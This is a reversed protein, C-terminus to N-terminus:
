DHSHMIIKKKKVYRSNYENYFTKDIDVSMCIFAYLYHAILIEREMEYILYWDNLQKTWCLINTNSQMDTIEWRIIFTYLNYKNNNGM